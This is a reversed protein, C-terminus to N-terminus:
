HDKAYSKLFMAIAGDAYRIHNVPRGKTFRWRLLEFFKQFTEQM